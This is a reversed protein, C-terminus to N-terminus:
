LGLEESNCTVEDKSMDITLQLLLANLMMNEKMCLPSPLFFNHFSFHRGLFPLSPLKIAFNYCLKQGM